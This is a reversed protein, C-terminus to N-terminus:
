LFLKRIVSPFLSRPFFSDLLYLWNSAFPLLFNVARRGEGGDTGVCTQTILGSGTRESRLRTWPPTSSLTKRHEAAKSKAESREPRVSLAKGRRFLSRYAVLPPLAYALSGCDPM